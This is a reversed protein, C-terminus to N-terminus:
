GGLEVEEAPFVPGDQCAKFYGSQGAKAVTCGICAGFGCAMFREVSVFCPVGTPVTLAKIAALMGEPGCAWVEGARGAALLAQLPQTVLGRGGLSGDETMVTVPLGVSELEAGGALYERSRAGIIAVCERGAAVAWEAAGVMPPIGLGGGILVLTGTGAAPNPFSHGLPGLLDLKTGPIATALARTGRGVVRYILSISGEAMRTECISIPRRLLPDVSSSGVPVVRVEVFQGPTARLAIEPAALVLKFVDGQAEHAIVTAAEQVWNGKRRTEALSM